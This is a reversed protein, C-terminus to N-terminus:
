EFKSLCTSRFSSKNSEEERLTSTKNSFRFFSIFATTVSFSSNPNRYFVISIASKVVRPSDFIQHLSSFLKEQEMFAAIFTDFKGNLGQHCFDFRYYHLFM